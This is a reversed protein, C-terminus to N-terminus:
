EEWRVITCSSGSRQVTVRYNRELDDRKVSMDLRFYTSEFGLVNALKTVAAGPFGPLARLDELNKIPSIMRASVLSHAHNLDVMDDLNAIVEPEAVNVNIKETGYVTVYRNLGGSLREHGYLINDNIEPLLKLESLDSVLRNINNERESGGLKQRDDKDMFDLVLTGVDPIRMAAWLNDWAAEYENRVTIGDPLFLGRLPIKDDLPTVTVIAQFDGIELEIQEVRSYLAETFGDYGNKDGGIKESVLTCAIEAVSRSQAMYVNTETRRMENRAFWAFAMASSLLLSVSILVSVLIFGRSSSKRCGRRM